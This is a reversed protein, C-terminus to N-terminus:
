LVVTHRSQCKKNFSVTLISNTGLDKAVNIKTYIGIFHLCEHCFILVVELFKRKGEEVLSLKQEIHCKHMQIYYM